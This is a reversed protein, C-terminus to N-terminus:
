RKWGLLQFVVTQIQAFLSSEVPANCEKKHRTNKKRDESKVITIHDFNMSKFEFWDVSADESQDDIFIIELRPYNFSSLQAFIVPLNEIENRFSILISVSPLSVRHHTARASEQWFSAPFLLFLVYILGFFLYISLM